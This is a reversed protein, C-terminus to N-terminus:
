TSLAHVLSMAEGELARSAALTREEAGEAARLQDYVGLVAQKALTQGADWRNFADTDHQLLLALDEVSQGAVSFRVPASFNRLASPVVPGSVGDFTWSQQAETLQLVTESGLRKQGSSLPVARGSSRDLLALRVPVLAPRPSPSAKSPKLTQSLTVTVRQQVADYEHRLTVEPTGAQGYWVKLSSLDAGNADAMADVFDDCTVAHGDHREFYLDMGKRFGPKGLMTECMRVVESGKEYVTTTYFNDMKVYSEPRVPHAMPGADEPFQASRMRVVDGIRQVARSGMDAGFEQERYVTLGEKLTLQFWDRCTVRNGTWNHFYEHGVVAEVRAHDADTAEEPRCLVLKANFLNLSKNEMAGMNFDDVAVVHFVNLDYKLGYTDEDWKMARQLCAIAFDVREIDRPATYFKLAVREGSSTVFPAEKLALKGAVLAFLYCPKPFPDRWLAWHRGEGGDGSEMLNGNSLLVPYLAKDAEIRTSYVAMVDPRDPFYTIGRFGEAECQTCFMGGSKYLGELLSNHQPEIRVRMELPVAKGPESAVALAEASLTLGEGDVEYDKGAELARGGFIVHELRVDERGNLFVAPLPATRPVVSLVATVLAHDEHLDFSLDVASISYPLPAYDKRFKEVPAANKASVM